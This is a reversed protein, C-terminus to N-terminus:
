IYLMPKEEIGSPAKYFELMNALTNTVKIEINHEGAELNFEYAYPSWLKAGCEKGDITVRCTHSVKPLVLVANESAEDLRFSFKYTGEGSYFPRGQETWSKDLSLEKGPTSLYIEADRPIYRHMNYQYASKKYFKEYINLQLDFEGKILLLDTSSFSGEKEIVLKHKGEHMGETIEFVVYDDDFIKEQGFSKLEAGDVTIKKVIGFSDKPIFLKGKGVPSKVTYTFMMKDENNNKTIPEYEETMWREIPIINEDGWSIEAKDSLIIKKKGRLDFPKRMFATKETFYCLEGCFLEIKHEKGKFSIKGCVPEKNNVNALIIMEGEDTMRRMYAPKGVGEFCADVPILESLKDLEDATILIINNDKFFQEDEASLSVGPNVAVKFESAKRKIGKMDAIVYGYPSHTLYSVSDFFEKGTDKGEWLDNTIDLLAVPAILKGENCIAAYTALTDNFEKIEANLHSNASFDPPAFYKTEGLLRYHYAHPVIFGIGQMVQWCMIERLDGYTAGWNSAAFMECMATEKDYLFAASAPQKSRVDEYLDYYKDNRIAKSNDGWSVEPEYIDEKFFIKNANIELLEQDTGPFDCKSEIDLARGEMFVSSREARSIPLPSTDSTHFTYKLGNAKLWEYNGAFWQQYLRSTHDWYDVAEKCEERRAIKELHPIIDYSYIEMFSEEFGDCWPFFDHEVSNEAFINANVRRNDADSFFGEVVNGFYEGIERKYAEYVLEIFLESSRKYEFAPYGWGVKEFVIKGDCLRFRQQSLTKDTEEIKGAVGGPPYDFGDNIWVRLSLDKAALIFNKVMSFWEDSLYNHKNFGHPPKNFLIIGGFGGKKLEKLSEYAKDYTLEDPNDTTIFYFPIPRFKDINM